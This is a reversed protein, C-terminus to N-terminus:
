VPLADPGRNNSLRAALTATLVSLAAAIDQTSIAPGSQAMIRPIDSVPAVIADNPVQHVTLGGKDDFHLWMRKDTMYKAFLNTLSESDMKGALYDMAATYQSAPLTLYSNVKFKRHLRAWTEGYGQRGSDAVLQVREKLAQAQAHSITMTYTGTKRIAPLVESTVWKAFARAEPKRSRLVLAYLGSENIITLAQDGGPTRVIQTGKEDEDLNRAADSANRYGLAMAVDHAVFWPADDQVITRVTASHFNFPVIANM